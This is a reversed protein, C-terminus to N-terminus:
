DSLSFNEARKITKLLFGDELHEQQQQQQQKFSGKNGAMVHDTILVLFYLFAKCLFLTIVTKTKEVSVQQM